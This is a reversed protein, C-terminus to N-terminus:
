RKHPGVFQQMGEGMAGFLFPLQAMGGGGTNGASLVEAGPFPTVATSHWGASDAWSVAGSPSLEAMVQRLPPVVLVPAQAGFIDGLGLFLRSTGLLDTYGDPAVGPLNTFSLSAAPHDGLRKMVAAFEPRQLISPSHRDVSDVAAAVVEPYLGVYLNGGKVAWTPTFLPVALFHLTTDNATSERFQVQVNPNDLQHAIIFNLRRSLQTLAQDARAADRLRNVMVSGLVNAGGTARDSYTVWQDGLSALLDRRVNIGAQANVKAIAQDVQAAVDPSFQAIGDRIADFGAALDLRTAAVRDASRPVVALLDADLPRADLLSLLGAHTGDTSAFTREVWDKGDFGATLAVQRFGGLGMAERIKPWQAAAEKDDGRQVGDDIAKVVGQIDLYGVVAAGSPRCQSLAATFKANGALTGGAPQGFLADTRDAPLLSLVVLNGYTRVTPKLDADPPLEAVLQNLQDALNGADAGAECLVAVRPLPHPGGYEMPGVYLATPHHWAPSAASVLRDMVEGAHEDLRGVRRVVQPVFSTFLQPITSEGLVAKLHSGDYGPCGDSGTWGLYVLADGPVHDAVPPAASAVATMSVVWLLAFLSRRVPM